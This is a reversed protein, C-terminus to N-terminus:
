VLPGGHRSRVSIVEAARLEDLDEAGNSSYQLWTRRKQEGTSVGVGLRTDLARHVAHGETIVGAAVFAMLRQELLVPELQEVDVRIGSAIRVVECAFRM